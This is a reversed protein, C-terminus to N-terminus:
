CATSASPRRDESRQNANEVIPLGTLALDIEQHPRANLRVVLHIVEDATAVPILHMDQLLVPDIERLDKQNELPYLIDHIGARKAALIKEKLGGIALVKGRLTVEGTMAVSRKIPAGTIASLVACTLTIGASPGDKPIGGEPVHIHLDHKAFFNDAIGFDKARSRIYTIAAKASEQMVSGLQGTIEVKGTGTVATAEIHLVEGGTPTWALGTAVGAEDVKSFVDEKFKPAGLWELLNESLVPQPLPTKDIEVRKVVKRLVKSIERELSRVGAERTYGRIIQRLVDNSIEVDSLQLGHNALAKPLIFNRAIAVKEEESYGSLRIVEMRDRLPPSITDLQNATAIFVVKSLDYELDLYHDSFHKNQEPDLIELLASSPDGRWDAGVKDIEDLLIVPNSVGAKRIATVIRGPLAGVYTRRHGRLEAEDRMGGLSIKEFKRNLSRAISKALSTKGAGPPGVFCLIPSKHSELRARVALFEIIRDKIETLGHHDADLVGQATSLNRNDESYSEWPLDLILEIYNRIVSAEASHGSAKLKKIERQARERAESPMKKDALRKEFDAADSKADGGEHGLEKHIASLQENLYYDRQSKEIQDKVRNKIKRDIKLVEIESVILSALHELRATGGTMELLHQRDKIKLSVQTALVDVLKDPSEIAELTKLFEDAPRGMAKLYSEYTGIVSRMLPRQEDTALATSGELEEIQGVFYSKPDTRQISIWQGRRFGEVIVKLNGDQLRNIQRIKAITGIRNLESEQPDSISPDTQTVLFVLKDRADALEIARISKSRGVFLPLAVNPFVVTDRLPLVPLQHLTAM